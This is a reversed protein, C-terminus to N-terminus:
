ALLGTAVLLYTVGVIAIAAGFTQLVASGWPRSAILGIAVGAIHLLGTAVVFGASFAVPNAMSPLEAGHAYGHFVAFFGVGFLALWVPARWRLAVATGLAIVSIAIGIEVPVMPAQMMGLTGGFAMVTPFIVPLLTVLPRGLFAGWLGVAVMALMHDFGSVPHAFGAAFGGALGDATHAAAPTATAIMTVAVVASAVIHRCRIMDPLTDNEV